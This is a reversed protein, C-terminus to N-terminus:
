VDNRQRLFEVIDAETIPIKKPLKVACTICWYRRKARYHSQHQKVAVSIEGYQSVKMIRDCVTCRADQVFDRTLEKHM